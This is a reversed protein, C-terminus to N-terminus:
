KKTNIKKNKKNKRSRKSKKQKKRRTKKKKGGKKDCQKLLLQNEIYSLKGIQISVEAQCHDASVVAQGSEADGMALRTPLSAIPITKKDNNTEIVFIQHKGNVVADLENLPVTLGNIALIRMNLMPGSVINEEHPVFAESLEKCEYVIKTEDLTKTTILTRINQKDLLGVQQNYIFIVNDPTETIYDCFSIDEMTFANYGSLGVKEFPKTENMNLTIEPRELYKQKKENREGLLRENREEETELESLSMRGRSQNEDNSQYNNARYSDMLNLLLNNNNGRPPSYPPTQPGVSIDFSDDNESMGSINNEDSPDVEIDSIQSEDVESNESTQPLDTTTRFVNDPTQPLDTTTRFVNDTTQQDYLTGTFDTETTNSGNINTGDLNAGIFKTKTLNANRITADQLDVYSLNANELNAGDLNANELTAGTLDAGKLDVNQLDTGDFNIRPIVINDGNVGSKLLLEIIQTRINYLELKAEDDGTFETPNLDNYRTVAIELPTNGSSNEFSLDTINVINEKIYPLDDEEIAKLFKTNLNGGIQSKSRRSRRKKGKNSQQLKKTKPM